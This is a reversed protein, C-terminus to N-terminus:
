KTFEVAVADGAFKTQEAPLSKFYIFAPRNVAGCNISGDFGPDQSYFELKDKNTVAFRITAESSKVVLMWKGNSCEIATLVGRVVQAGDIKITPRGIMQYSRGPPAATETAQPPPGPEHNAATETSRPRTNYEIMQMVSQASQKLGDQDDGALLPELSKKAAAYDQMRIQIQALTLAHHKNQPELRMASKIAVAGEKLNDGTVLSMFGLMYYSPAFQPRLSIATRLEGIIKTALEAGMQGQAERQLAEAYYYHVLYNKSDRTAAQKFYDLAKDFHNRRMEVFGLGEYLRAQNGDLALAQKFYTEAEDLRNTRMLLNGLHFQTEADALPRVAIEKEGEVSKMTYIMAPYSNNGIYRRLDKEMVGMDTKFVQTFARDTSVGANILKVFEVLQPRRAQHDGYMLYHLLAWSEAYFISQKDRENYAPSDHRVNFLDSLPMFKSERLRYVHSSIVAGLTVDRKKVDFTSYLEALGEKLWLPWERPTYSNLMHTYEHFIISMPHEGSGNMELAILNEDHGPQFYGSLNGPKGNYLPKYPKFSSDNKFVVVTVPLFGETSIGFLQTFISHFQEIKLAVERTEDEDANSVINLNKTTLAIWKDKASVPAAMLAVLALSVLMAAKLRYIKM